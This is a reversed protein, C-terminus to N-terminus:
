PSILKFALPDSISKWVTFFQGTAGEQRAEGQLIEGSCMGQGSKRMMMTALLLAMMMMMMMTLAIMMMPIVIMMTMVM